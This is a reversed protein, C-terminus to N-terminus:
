REMSGNGSTAPKFTSCPLSHTATSRWVSCAAALDGVPDDPASVDHQLREPGTHGLTEAEVRGRQVREMGVEDVEAGRAVARAPRASVPGANAGVMPAAAPSAHRLAPDVMGSRASRVTSTTFVVAIRRAAATIPTPLASPNEATLAPM